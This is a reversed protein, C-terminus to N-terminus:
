YIIKAPKKKKLWNDKNYILKGMAYGFAAGVLADSAWHKNDYLRSLSVVGALTYSVLPVAWHDTYESSVITAVAFVSVAHGSPFSTFSSIGHLPGQWKHPEPPNDQYPRHRQLAYKPIRAFLGTILYTKLGTLATKKSRDNKNILGELYFAAMLGMSYTGSGWPELAYKSFQDGGHSRNKQFVKQIGADQSYVLASILTVGTFGLWQTSKWHLPAAAMDRSDYWYSKFYAANIAHKKEPVQEMAQQGFTFTCRLLICFTLLFFPRM